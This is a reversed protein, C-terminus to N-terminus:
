MFHAGEPIAGALGSVGVPEEEFLGAKRRMGRLSGQKRVQLLRLASDQGPEIRIACGDLRTFIKPAGVGARSKVARPQSLSSREQRLIAVTRHLITCFM